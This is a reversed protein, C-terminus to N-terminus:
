GNVDGWELPCFQFICSVVSDDKFRFRCDKCYDLPHKKCEEVVVAMGDEGIAEKLAKIIEEDM